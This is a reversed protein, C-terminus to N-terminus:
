GSGRRRGAARHSLRRRLKVIMLAFSGVLLLGFLAAGVWLNPIIGVIGIFAIALLLLMERAENGFQQLRAPRARVVGLQQERLGLRARTSADIFLTPIDPHIGLTERAGPFRDDWSGDSVRVREQWVDEPIQFAKLVLMRVSGDEDAAGELVVYDGSAVGLLQLSLESMLCVERETSSPDALTVRFSVSNPAGLLADFAGQREVTVPRLIAREGVELGAGMRLMHDVEILAPDAPPAADHTARYVNAIVRPARGDVGHAIAESSIEVHQPDGLAARVDAGLRVVSNGSRELLDHTRGVTVSWRPDPSAGPVRALARARFRAGYRPDAPDSGASSSLASSVASSVASGADRDVLPNALVEHGSGQIVALSAAAGPPAALLEAPESGWAAACVPDALLTRLAEEQTRLRRGALAPDPDGMVFPAGDAGLVGHHAVYAYAGLLREGTELLIEADDVWVRRYWPTETADIARLQARSLFQVTTATVAGAEPFLTAPLYGAPALFATFGVRYGTMRARISPIVLQATEDAFKNRLQSPAANSGIAIVPVLGDAIAGTLEELVSNLTPPIRHSLGLREASEADIAVRTSGLRQESPSEWDLPDSWRDLIRWVEHQTILVSADPVTGPYSLPHRRPAASGSYEPGDWVNM